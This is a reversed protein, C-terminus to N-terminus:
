GHKQFQGAKCVRQDSRETNSVYFIKRASKFTEIKMRALKSSKVAKKWVIFAKHSKTRKRHKEDGM